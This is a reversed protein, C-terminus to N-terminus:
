QGCAWDDLTRKTQGKRLMHEPPPHSCGRLQVKTIPSNGDKVVTSVHWQYEPNKSTRKRLETFTCVSPFGANELVRYLENLKRVNSFGEAYIFISVDPIDRDPAGAILRLYGFPTVTFNIGPDTNYKKFDAVRHLIVPVNSVTSEYDARMFKSFRNIPKADQIDIYVM